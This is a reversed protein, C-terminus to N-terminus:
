EITLADLQPQPFQPDLRRLAEVLLSAVAFNRVWKRDAPVV